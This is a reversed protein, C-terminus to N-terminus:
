CLITIIKCFKSVPFSQKCDNTLLLDAFPDVVENSDPDAETNKEADSDEEETEKPISEEGTITVPINKEADEVEEAEGPEPASEDPSSNDGDSPDTSTDADYEILELSSSSIDSAFAYTPVAGVLLAASLIVSLV